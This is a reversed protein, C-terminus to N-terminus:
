YSLTLPQPQRVPEFESETELETEYILCRIDQEATTLWAESTFSLRDDCHYTYTQLGPDAHDFTGAIGYLLLFAAATLLGQIFRTWM